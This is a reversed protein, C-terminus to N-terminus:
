ATRAIDSQEREGRGAETTATAIAEATTTPAHEDAPTAGVGCRDVAAVPRWPARIAPHGIGPWVVVVLKM